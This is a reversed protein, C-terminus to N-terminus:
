AEIQRKAKIEQVIGVATNIIIVTIFLINKWAGVMALSVAILLNLLNFMTCINDRFIRFVSKTAKVTM